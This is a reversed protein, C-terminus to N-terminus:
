YILLEVGGMWWSCGHAVGAPLANKGGDGGLEVGVFANVGFARRPVDVELDAVADVAEDGTTRQALEARQCQFFFSSTVRMAM